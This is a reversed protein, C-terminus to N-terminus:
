TRNAPSAADTCAAPWVERRKIARAWCEPNSWISRAPCGKGCVLGRRREVERAAAAKAALASRTGAFTAIVTAQRRVLDAAFLLL